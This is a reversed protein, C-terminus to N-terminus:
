TINVRKDPYPLHWGYDVFIVLRSMTTVLIVLSDTL